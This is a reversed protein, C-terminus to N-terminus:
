FCVIELYSVYNRRGLPIEDLITFIKNIIAKGTVETFVYLIYFASHNFPGQCRMFCARRRSPYSRHSGYFVINCFLVENFMRSVGKVNLKFNEQVM